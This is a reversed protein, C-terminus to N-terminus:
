RLIHSKWSPSIECIWRNAIIM